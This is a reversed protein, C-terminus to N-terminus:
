FFDGDDNNDFGGGFDGGGFGGNDFDRREEYERGEEFGERRERDGDDDSMMEGILAGGILGAVGAGVVAGTSHGQRPQQPYGAQPYGPQAYGQGYGQQAYGGQQPYGGPVYGGQQPYGAAPQPPTYFPPPTTQIRQACAQCSQVPRPVGWQPQWVVNVAGYGHSPDFFCTVSVGM